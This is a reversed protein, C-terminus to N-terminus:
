EPKGMTAVWPRANVGNKALVHAAEVAKCLAGMKNDIITMAENTRLIADISKAFAPHGMPREGRLKKYEARAPAVDAMVALRQKALDHFELQMDRVNKTILVGTSTFIDTM